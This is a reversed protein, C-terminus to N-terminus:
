WVDHMIDLIYGDDLDVLAIDHDVWVWACGPPPPPLGYAVYDQVIFRWYWQPLYEGAQWYRNQYAYPVSIYGYYPMFFFGVRPGFYRRFHHDHRWWNHDHRWRANRDWDRHQERWVTGAHQQEHGKLSRNWGGLAPSPRGAAPPREHYQSGVPAPQGPARRYAPQTAAGPTYRREFQGAPPPAGKLEPPRAAPAPPPKAGTGAVGSRQYTQMRPAEGRGPHAPPPPGAVHRGAPPPQPQAQALATAPLGLCLAAGTAFLIQLPRM